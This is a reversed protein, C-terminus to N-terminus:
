LRWRRWWGGPHVISAAEAVRRGMQPLHAAVPPGHHVLLLWLIAPPSARHALAPQQPHGADHHSHEQYHSEHGTSVQEGPCVLRNFSVKAGSKPRNGQVLLHSAKQEDMEHFNDEKKGDQDPRVGRVFREWGSRYVGKGGRGGVAQSGIEIAGALKGSVWGGM